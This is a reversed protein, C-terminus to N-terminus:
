ASAWSNAASHGLPRYALISATMASCTSVAMLYHASKETDKSAAQIKKHQVYSNTHKTTTTHHPSLSETNQRGDECLSAWHKILNKDTKMDTEGDSPSITGFGDAVYCAFLRFNKILPRLEGAVGALEGEAGLGWTWWAIGIGVM